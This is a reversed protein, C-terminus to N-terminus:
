GTRERILSVRGKEGKEGDEGRGEGKAAAAAAAAVGGGGEEEGLREGEKRVEKVEDEEGREREETEQGKCTISKEREKRKMQLCSM